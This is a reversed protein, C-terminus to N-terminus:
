QAPYTGREGVGFGFRRGLWQQALRRIAGPHRRAAPSVPLSEPERSGAEPKRSGAKAPMGAPVTVWGAVM